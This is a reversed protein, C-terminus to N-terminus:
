VKKLITYEESVGSPTGWEPGKFRLVMKQGGASILFNFHGSWPKPDIDTIVIEANHRFLGLPNHELLWARINDERPPQEM